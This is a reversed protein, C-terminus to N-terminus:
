KLYQETFLTIYGCLRYIEQEMAELNEQNEFHEDLADIKLRLEHLKQKACVIQEHRQPESQAYFQRGSLCINKISESNSLMLPLIHQVFTLRKEKTKLQQDLNEKIEVFSNLEYKDILGTLFKHFNVVKSDM